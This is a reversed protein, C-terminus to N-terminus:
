DSQGALNLCLMLMNPKPFYHLMLKLYSSFIIIETGVSNKKCNMFSSQYYIIVVATQKINPVVVRSSEILTIMMILIMILNMILIMMLMIM